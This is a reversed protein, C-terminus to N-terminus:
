LERRQEPNLGSLDINDFVKQQHEKIEVATMDNNRQEEEVEM